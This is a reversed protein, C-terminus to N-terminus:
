AGSKLHCGKECALFHGCFHENDVLALLGDKSCLLQGSHASFVVLSGLPKGTPSIHSCFFWSTKPARPNLLKDLSQLETAVWIFM